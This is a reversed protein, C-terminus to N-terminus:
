AERALVRAIQAATWVAGRATRLDADNLDAAIARLSLGSRRLSQVKEIVARADSDLDPILRSGQKKWGWPAVSWAYREGEQALRRAKAKRGDRLRKAIMARDLQAFVGAMQRYATRMPDDPDDMPVERGDSTFVRGSRSWVAALLAEQVTLSRSLRTLDPLVVGDLEGAELALLIAAFQERHEIGNSGSTVEVHESTVSYTVPSREAYEAIDHRQRDVGYRDDEAQRETSVRLYAALRM